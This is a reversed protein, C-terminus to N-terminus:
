KSGGTAAQKAQYEDLPTQSDLISPKEMYYVRYTMDLSISDPTGSLKLTSFDFVRQSSEIAKLFNQISEYKGTAKFVIPFTKVTGDGSTAVTEVPKVAGSASAKSINEIKVLTETELKQFITLLLGLDDTTPLVRQTIRDFDSVQSSDPQKIDKLKTEAEALKDVKENALKIYIDQAKIENAKTINWNALQYTFYGGVLVILATISIAIILFNRVGTQQSRSIQTQPMEVKNTTKSKIVATTAPKSAAM